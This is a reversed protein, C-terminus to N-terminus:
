YKMLFATLAAETSHSLTMAVHIGAEQLAKATTEGWAIIQGKPKSNCKLFSTVNSPSTFVYIDSSAIPQCASLTRYVHVEEYQDVPLKKAISRNSQESCPILVSRQGVWRVFDAAVQDPQGSKEGIFDVKVGFSRIREATTVGICAVATEESIKENELFYRAARISGFFIVQYSQSVKLSIREFRILSEAILSIGNAECFSPLVTLESSSKSIFLRKM